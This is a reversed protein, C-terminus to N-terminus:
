PSEIHAGPEAYKERVRRSERVMAQLMKAARALNDNRRLYKEIPIVIGKGELTLRSTMSVRDAM